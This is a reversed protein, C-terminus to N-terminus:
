GQRAFLEREVQDEVPELVRAECHYVAVAIAREEEQLKTLATRAEASLAELPAGNTIAYLRKKLDPEVERESSYDFGAARVCDAFEALAAIMRPDQEILADKPNLYTTQLQEPTFAQEIAQRTCGGIRSFNETELAVAFTADTNEGLLARNYAVQDAPSLSQFIQVNREGLGIKAPSYGDALQPPKGTYFTSIGFGFETFFQKESYGPLRKDAVMGRRFTKYDVAIYEFGAESMCQAIFAEVTEITKVLEESSLGFEETEVTNSQSASAAQGFPNAFRVRGGCAPVLISIMMVALLLRPHSSMIRNVATSCRQRGFQVIKM